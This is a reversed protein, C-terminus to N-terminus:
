DGAADCAGHVLLYSHFLCYHQDYKYENQGTHRQELSIGTGGIARVLRMPFCLPNQKETQVTKMLKIQFPIDGTM